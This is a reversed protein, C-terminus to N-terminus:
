NQQRQLELLASFYCSDGSMSSWKEKILYDEHQTIGNEIIKGGNMEFSRPFAYPLSGYHNRAYDLFFEIRNFDIKNSM